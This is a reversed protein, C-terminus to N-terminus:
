HTGTFFRSLSADCAACKYDPNCHNEFDKRFYKLMTEIPMIPSQGLACLSTQKMLTALTKLGTLDPVTAIRKALNMTTKELQACGIRCPTCQGCSEHKFFSMTHLLFDVPCTTEDCVLIVGSGLTAGQRMLTDIDLPTDMMDQGVIGGASGGIQAFKFAKGELIGKGHVDIIERLTVGMPLEVLGTRNLKGSLCFLKTGACTVTGVEKFWLAGRNMIMPVSMLTEVNNVTSPNNNFGAQGPFPPKYRPYGRFGEMSNILSTEEGCVYAGGGEKIFVDFDFGSGFIRRGLFGSARAQEIAMQLRDISRRYEGRVYIYGITANTAYGCIMMGELLLHPNGEMLIRDKFTGPEGEDANCIVYKQMDGKVVFSWKLGAPFGAGGRGRLGSDKVVSVVDAPSVSLAKRIGRYGGSNTYDEIREPDIKGINELLRITQGTRPLITQAADIEEGSGWGDAVPNNRYSSLISVIKEHTLLGHLDYNVMMAPAVSCVGLCECRELYFLGDPTAEGEQIGLVQKVSDFVSIAGMTHCPTSKCIRIVHRARPKSRFMTYFEVFGAIASPPLNMLEAVQILVSKDLYNMGSMNELERLIVLLNERANGYTELVDKIQQATIM